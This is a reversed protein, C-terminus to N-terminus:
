GSSRTEFFVKSKRFPDRELFPHQNNSDKHFGETTLNINIFVIYKPTCSKHVETFSLPESPFYLKHLALGAVL